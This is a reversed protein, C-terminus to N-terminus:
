SVPATQMHCQAPVGATLIIGSSIVGDTSPEACIFDVVFCMPERNPPEIVVLVNQSNPLESHKFKIAFSSIALLDGTFFSDSNIDFQGNDNGVPFLKLPYQVLKPGLSETVTRVAATISSISSQHEILDGLRHETVLRAAESRGRMRRDARVHATRDFIFAAVLGVGGAKEWVDQWRVDFAPCWAAVLMCLSLWGIMSPLSLARSQQRPEDLATEGVARAQQM